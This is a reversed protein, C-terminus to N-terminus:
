YPPTTEDTVSKDIDEQSFTLKRKSLYVMAPRIMAPGTLLGVPETLRAHEKSGSLRDDAVDDDILQPPDIDDYLESHFISM